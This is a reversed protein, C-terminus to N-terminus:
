EGKTLYDYGLKFAEQAQPLLMAVFCAHVSLFKDSHYHKAPVGLEILRDYFEKGGYSLRDMEATLVMSKPFNSNVFEYPFIIDGDEGTYLESYHKTYYASVFSKMLPFKSNLCSELRYIGCNLYLGKFTLDKSKADLNHRAKYTENSSIAGLVATLHGGASEGGLYINDLDLNYKEQNDVLWALSKYINSVMNKYNYKPAVGYYVSLTFFGKKAWHSPVGKRSEPKGSIWGGGHIYVFVPNKKETSLKDYCLNLYLNDDDCYKIKNEWVVNKEARINYLPTGWWENFTCFYKSFYIGFKTRLNMIKSGLFVKIYM